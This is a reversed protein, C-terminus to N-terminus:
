KRPIKKWAVINEYVTSGDTCDWRYWPTVYYDYDIVRSLRATKRIGSLLIVEYEPRRDRPLAEDVGPVHGGYIAAHLAKDWNKSQRREPLFQVLFSVGTCIKQYGKLFSNM